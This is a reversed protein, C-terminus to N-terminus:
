VSSLEITKDADPRGTLERVVYLFLAPLTTAVCVPSVEDVTLVTVHVPACGTRHSEEHSLEDQVLALQWGPTQLGYRLWAPPSALSEKSVELEYFRCFYASTAHPLM